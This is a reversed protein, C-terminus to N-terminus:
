NAVLFVGHAINWQQRLNFGEEASAMSQKNVAAVDLAM